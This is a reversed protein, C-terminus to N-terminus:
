PKWRRNPDARGAEDFKLGEHELLAQCEAPGGIDGQWAPSITGDSRLVRHVTDPVDEVRALFQGVAMGAGTTGGSAVALDQYSMWYGAPIESMVQRLVDWDVKRAGARQLKKDRQVTYEAAEPLPILVSSALLVEGEIEYPVLQICTIDMGYQERLWLCTSTVEVRFSKSVLFIRPKLDEDLREIEGEAVHAALEKRAAERTLKTRQKARHEVFLDVVDDVGFSACYAAYRIAQLDHSSDAERKLEVVVLRGGEDLALIDLRDKSKDFKAFQRSLVLLREGLVDPASAIWQEVDQVELAGLAQFTTPEV